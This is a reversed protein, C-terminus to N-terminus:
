RGHKAGLVKYLVIVLLVVLAWLALDFAADSVDM